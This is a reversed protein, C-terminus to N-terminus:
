ELGTPKKTDDLTGKDVVEWGTTWGCKQCEKYTYTHDKGDEGKETKTQYKFDHYDHTHDNLLFKGDKLILQVEGDYDLILEKLDDYNEESVKIKEVYKDSSDFYEANNITVLSKVMEFPYYVLASRVNTCEDNVTLLIVKSLDITMEIDCTGTITVNEHVASWWENWTKNESKITVTVIGTSENLTVKADQDNDTIDKKILEFIVKKSDLVNKRSAEVTNVAKEFDEGHTTTFKNTLEVKGNIAFLIKAGEESRNPITLNAEISATLPKGYADTTYSFKVADKYQTLLDKVQEYLSPKTAESESAPAAYGSPQNDPEKKMMDEVFAWVTLNAMSEFIKGIEEKMGDLAQKRNEETMEPGAAGSMQLVVNGITTALFEENEIQEMFSSMPTKGKEDKPMVGDVMKLLEVLDIGEKKLDALVDSVTKDLIGTAYTMLEDFKGEGLISDYLERVTMTNFKENTALLRDFSLAVTYGDGTKTVTLFLDALKACIDEMEPHAKIIKKMEPLLKEEILAAIDPMMESIQDAVTGNVPIIEFLSDLSLLFAEANQNADQVTANATMYVSGDKLVVAGSFPAVAEPEGQRPMKGKAYGTGTIKGDAFKVSLEAEEIKVHNDNTVVELDKITLNISEDTGVEKESM